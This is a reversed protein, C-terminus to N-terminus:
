WSTDMDDPYFTTKYEDVEKEKKEENTEKKKAGWEFSELVVSLKNRKEGRDITQRVVLRGGLIIQDGKKFYDNIVEATREWAEVPIFSTHPKEKTGDDIAVNFNLVKKGTETVRIELDQAIRGVGIWSNKINM